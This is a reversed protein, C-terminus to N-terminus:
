KKTDEKLKAQDTGISDRITRQEDLAEILFSQEYDPNEELKAREMEVFAELDEITQNKEDIQRELKSILEKKESLEKSNSNNYEEKIGVQNHKMKAEDSSHKVSNDSANGSGQNSREGCANLSIFTFILLISRFIFKLILLLKM